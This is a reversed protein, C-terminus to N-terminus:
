PGTTSPLRPRAPSEALICLGSNAALWMWRLKSVSLSLTHCAGVTADADFAARASPSLELLAAVQRAVQPSAVRIKDGIM